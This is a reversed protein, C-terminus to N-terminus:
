IKWTLPNLTLPKLSQIMFWTMVIIMRNLKRLVLRYFLQYQWNNPIPTISQLSSFLQFNSFTVHRPFCKPRLFNSISPSKSIDTKYFSITEYRFWFPTAPHFYLYSLPSFLPTCLKPPSNQLIADVKFLFLHVSSKFNSTPTTTQSDTIQQFPFLRQHAM